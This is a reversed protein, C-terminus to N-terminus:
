RSASGRGPAGLLPDSRRKSRDYRPMVRELTLVDLRFAKLLGALQRRYGPAKDAEFGLATLNENTWTHQHRDFFGHPPPRFGPTGLVVVGTITRTTQNM